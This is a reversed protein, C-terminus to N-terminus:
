LHMSPFTYIALATLLNGKSIIHKVPEVAVPFDTAMYAALFRVGQRKYSPPFHGTITSSDASISLATKLIRKPFNVFQPCVHTPM